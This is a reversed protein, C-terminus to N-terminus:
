RTSQAHSEGGREAEHSPGGLSDLLNLLDDKARKKGPKGRPAAPEPAGEAQVADQMCLLSPEIEVFHGPFEIEEQLRAWTRDIEKKDMDYLLLKKNAQKVYGDKWIKHKRQTRQTYLCGLM